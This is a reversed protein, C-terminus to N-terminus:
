MQFWTCGLSYLDSRIDALKSNRAQEPSMYDVTGVTTGARTIGTEITDDVSRALGLDTVKVVGDRRILLNSPKIDRHVIKHEHAHQLASAVQKMMEISRKVPITGRRNIMEHLDQGEVFEMAIYLYGDSEDSDYVAVINDHRLQAAAQAEAKFRRVLTPNSAKDRPLVKIAVKRRLETDLALYVAGMGGQGLKKDIQYKGLRRLPEEASTGSAQRDPARTEADTTM